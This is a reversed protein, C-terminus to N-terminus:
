RADKAVKKGNKPKMGLAVRTRDEYDESDEDDWKRGVVKERDPLFDYVFKNM